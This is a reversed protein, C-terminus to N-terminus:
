EEEDWSFNEGTASQESGALIQPQQLQVVMMTPKQYNERKMKKNNKLHQIRMNM